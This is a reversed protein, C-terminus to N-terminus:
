KVLKRQAVLRRIRHLLKPSTLKKWRIIWCSNQLWFNAISLKCKFTEVCSKVCVWREAVTMRCFNLSFALSFALSFTISFAFYRRLPLRFSVQKWKRLVNKTNFLKKICLKWAFNEHLTKSLDKSTKESKHFNLLQRTPFFGFPLSFTQTNSHILQAGALKCSLCRFTGRLTGDSHVTLHVNSHVNSHVLTWVSGSDSEHCEFKASLRADTETSSYARSRVCEDIKRKAEKIQFTENKMQPAKSNM